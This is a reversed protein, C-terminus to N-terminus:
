ERIGSLASFRLTLKKCIECLEAISPHLAQNKTSFETILKHLSPELTQLLRQSLQDCIFPVFGIQVKSNLEVFKLVDEIKICDLLNIKKEILYLEALDLLPQKELASARCIVKWISDSTMKNQIAQLCTHILDSCCSKLQLFECLSLLNLLQDITLDLSVKNLYLYDLLLEFSDICAEVTDSNESMGKSMASSNRTEFYDSYACLVARHVPITKSSQGDQVNLHFDTKDADRQSQLFQFLQTNKEQPDYGDVNVPGNVVPRTIQPIAEDRASQVYKAFDFNILEQRYLRPFYSHIQNQSIAWNEFPMPTKPSQMQSCLLRQFKNNCFVTIVKGEQGLLLDKLPLWMKQRAEGQEQWKCVKVLIDKNQILTGLKKSLFQTNWENANVSENDTAEFPPKKSFAIKADYDRGEILKSPTILNM